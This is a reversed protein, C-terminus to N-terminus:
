FKVSFYLPTLFCRCPPIFRIKSNETSCSSQTLWVSMWVEVASTIPPWLNNCLCWISVKNCASVFSTLHPQTAHPPREKSIYLGHLLLSNSLESVERELRYYSSNMGGIVCASMIYYLVAYWKKNSYLHLLLLVWIDNIPKLNLQNYHCFCVQACVCVVLQGLCTKKRSIQTIWIPHWLRPFGTQDQCLCDLFVVSPIECSQQSSIM